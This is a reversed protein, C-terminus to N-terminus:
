GSLEHTGEEQLRHHHTNRESLKQTVKSNLMKNCLQFYIDLEWGAPIPLIKLGLTSHIVHNVAGLTIPLLMILAKFKITWCRMRDLEGFNVEINPNKLILTPSMDERISCIYTMMTIM